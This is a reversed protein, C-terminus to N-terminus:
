NDEHKIPWITVWPEGYGNKVGVLDPHIQMSVKWPFNDLPIDAKKAADALIRCPSYDCDLYISDRNDSDMDTLKEILIRKFEQLKEAAVLRTNMDAILGALVSGFNDDGNQHTVQGSIRKMWWEAAAEIVENPIKNEM